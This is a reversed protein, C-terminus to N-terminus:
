RSFARSLRVCFEADDDIEIGLGTLESYVEDYSQESVSLMMRM